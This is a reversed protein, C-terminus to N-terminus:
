CDSPADFLDGKHEEPRHVPLAFPVAGRVLEDVTDEAGVGHAVGAECRAPARVIRSGDDDEVCIGVGGPEDGRPVGACTDSVLAASGARHDGVTWVFYIQISRGGQRREAM